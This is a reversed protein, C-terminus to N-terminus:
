TGDTRNSGKKWWLVFRFVQSRHMGRPRSGESRHIGQIDRSAHRPTMQEHAHLNDDSLTGQALLSVNTAHSFPKADEYM